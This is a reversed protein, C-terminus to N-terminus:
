RYDNRGFETSLIEETRQATDTRDSRISSFWPPPWSAPRREPLETSFFIQFGSSVETIPWYFSPASTDFIVAMPETASAALPMSIDEPTGTTAVSVSANVASPTPM